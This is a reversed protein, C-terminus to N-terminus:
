KSTSKIYRKTFGYDILKIEDDDILLNEPKIDNHVYGLQHLSEVCNFIDVFYKLLEVNVSSNEEIYEKFSTEYFPMIYFGHLKVEQEHQCIFVGYDEITM